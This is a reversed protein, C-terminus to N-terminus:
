LPEFAGKANIKNIYAERALEQKVNHFDIKQQSLAAWWMSLAGLTGNVITWFM